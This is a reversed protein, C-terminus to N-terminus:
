TWSHLAEPVPRRLSTQSRGQGSCLLCTVHTLTFECQINGIVAVYVKFIGGHFIVVGDDEFLDVVENYHCKDIYYGYAHQLNRIAAIDELVGIRHNQSKILQKLEEIESASM